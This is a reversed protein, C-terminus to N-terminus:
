DPSNGHHPRLPAAVTSAYVVLANPLLADDIAISIPRPASESSAFTTVPGASWLAGDWSARVWSVDWPSATSTLARAASGGVFVYNGGAAYVSTDGGTQE